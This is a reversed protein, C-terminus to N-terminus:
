KLKNMLICAKRYIETRKGKYKPHKNVFDEIIEDVTAEKKGKIFKKLKKNIEKEIIEEKHTELIQCTTHYIDNRHSNYEPYEEIFDTVIKKVNVQKSEIIFDDLRITLVKDFNSKTYNEHIERSVLIIEIISIILLISTLEVVM